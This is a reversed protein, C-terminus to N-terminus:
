TIGTTKQQGSLGAEQPKKNKHVCLKCNVGGCSGRIPKKGLLTGIAMIPFIALFLLFAFLYTM